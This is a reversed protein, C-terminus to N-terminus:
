IVQQMKQTKSCSELAIPLCTITNYLSSLFTSWARRSPLFLRTGFTNHLFCQEAPPKNSGKVIAFTINV